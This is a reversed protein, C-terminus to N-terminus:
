IVGKENHNNIASMRANHCGECNQCFWTKVLYTEFFMQKGAKECYLKIFTNKPNMQKVGM